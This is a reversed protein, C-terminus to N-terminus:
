QLMAIFVYLHTVCRFSLQYVKAPEM